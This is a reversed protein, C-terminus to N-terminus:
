AFRRFGADVSFALSDIFRGGRCPERLRWGYARSEVDAINCPNWARLDVPGMSRGAELPKSRIIARAAPAGILM